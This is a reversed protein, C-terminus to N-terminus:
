FAFDLRFQSRTDNGSDFRRYDRLPDTTSNSSLVGEISLRVNARVLLSCHVTTRNFAKGFNPNLNEFRVAPIVWPLLAYRAEVLTILEDFNRSVTDIRDRNLQVGALLNGKHINADLKGGLRFFTNGDRVLNEVGGTSILTPASGRYYFAGVTVSNDVLNDAEVLETVSAGGGLVGMGGIKYNAGFYFDKNSNNEFNTRGQANLAAQLRNNFGAVASGFAAAGSPTGADRGNVVGLYWELGGKHRPGEQNGWIELGRQNPSLSFSNGTAPMGYRNSLYDSVRMMRLRTPTLVARPEFLGATVNVKRSPHNYQFYARPLAAGFSTPITGGDIVELEAFFSLSNEITGAGLLYLENLGDFENTIRASPNVRFQSSLWFSAVSSGPIDAPWVSKPFVERWAPAGLSTPKDKVLAREGGPIRYGNAKFAKGFSNLVPYVLHCTSCSTGYKRAFAPIAKGEQSTGLLMAALAALLLAPRYTRNM